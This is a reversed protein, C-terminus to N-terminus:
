GLDHPQLQSESFITGQESDTTQSELATLRLRWKPHWCLMEYSCALSSAYLVLNYSHYRNFPLDFVPDYLYPESPPPLLFGKVYLFHKAMSSM